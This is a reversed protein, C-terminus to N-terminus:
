QEMAVSCLEQRVMHTLDGKTQQSMTAVEQKRRWWIYSPLTITPHSHTRIWGSFHQLQLRWHAPHMKASRRRFLRQQLLWQRVPLELLMAGLGRSEIRGSRSRTWIWRGPLHQLQLRWHAPHMKASRRRLLRQHLLWQRVPLELIM